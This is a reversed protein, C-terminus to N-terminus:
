KTENRILVFKGGVMKGYGEEICELQLQKLQPLEISKYYSDFSMSVAMGIFFFIGMICFWKNDDM